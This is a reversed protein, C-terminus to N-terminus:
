YRSSSLMFFRCPLLTVFRLAITVALLMAVRALIMPEWSARLLDGHLLYATIAIAFFLAHRCVGYCCSNMARSFHLLPMTHSYVRLSFLMLLSFRLMRCRATDIFISFLLCLLMLTLPERLLMSFWCPTAYYSAHRIAALLTAVYCTHRFFFFFFFTSVSLTDAAAFIAYCADYGGYDIAAYPTFLRLPTFMLRLILTLM